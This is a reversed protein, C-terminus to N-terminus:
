REARNWMTKMVRADEVTLRVVAYHDREMAKCLRRAEAGLPGQVRIMDHLFVQAPRSLSGRVGVWVM